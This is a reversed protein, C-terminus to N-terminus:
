DRDFTTLESDDAYPGCWNSMRAKLFVDILDVLRDLCIVLNEGCALGYDCAVEVGVCVPVLPRSFQAVSLDHVPQLAIETQFAGVVTEKLALLASLQVRSEKHVLVLLLRKMDVVAKNRAGPSQPINEHALNWLPFLAAIM